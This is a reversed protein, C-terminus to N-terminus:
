SGPPASYSPQVASGLLVRVLWGPLRPEVVRVAIYVAALAALETVTGGLGSLWGTVAAPLGLGVLWAVLAAWTGPVVTRVISTIKDNM